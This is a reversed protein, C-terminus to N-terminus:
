KVEPKPTKMVQQLLEYEKPMMDVGLVRKGVDSIKLEDMIDIANKYTAKDDTKILVTIAIRDGLVDNVMRSITSDALKKKTGEEIAEKKKNIAWENKEMLLKHLGVPSSQSYNTETLTTIPQGEPGPVDRFEGFYWFIRDNDSVLFTLGNKVPPQDEINKPKAPLALEMAKPKSFTSTLVFFTLLLFALDVMPTMDVRTSQKKARKKGGKGHGGGGGEAIEAM